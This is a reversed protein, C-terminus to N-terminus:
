GAKARQERRHPPRKERLALALEHPEQALADVEVDAPDVAELGHDEYVPSKLSTYLELKM